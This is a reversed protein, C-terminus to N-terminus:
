TIVVTVEDLLKDESPHSTPWHSQSAIRTVHVRQSPRSLLPSPHMKMFENGPQLLFWM